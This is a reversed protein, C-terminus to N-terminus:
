IKKRQVENERKLKECEKLAKTKEIEAELKKKRLDM